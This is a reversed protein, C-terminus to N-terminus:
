HITLLKDKEGVLILIDGVLIKLTSSPNFFMDDQRKIAIVIINYNERFGSDKLEKNAFFSDEEVTLEEISLSIKPSYAMVDIFDVVNPKLVSNVIKRSGLEYPTVVRSAGIKHLRNKNAIDKARTIIYISPNVERATMVTFINDADTALLSIFAKAKNIGAKKILEEDTADGMIVSYGKEEAFSYREQDNEIIVFKCKLKTLDRCVNLAMIGFGAIIVHDKLKLLTKMKRRGLILRINHEFAREVIAGAIYFVTGLGSIIVWITFLKGNDSLEFVERYGVTTISIITMYLADSFSAYEILIYGTVDITILAILIMFLLLTKKIISM